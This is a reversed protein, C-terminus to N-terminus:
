RNQLVKLVSSSSASRTAHRGASSALPLSMALSLLTATAIARPAQLRWDKEAAHQALRRKM